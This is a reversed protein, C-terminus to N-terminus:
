NYTFNIKNIFLISKLFLTKKYIKIWDDVKQNASDFENHHLILSLKLVFKIKKLEM